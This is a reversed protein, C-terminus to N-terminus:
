FNLLTTQIVWRKDKSVAGFHENGYCYIKVVAVHYFSHTSCICWANIASSEGKAMLVPKTGERGSNIEEDQDTWMNTGQVGGESWSNGWTQGTRDGGGLVERIM